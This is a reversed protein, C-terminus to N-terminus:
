KVYLLENPSSYYLMEIGVEFYGYLIELQIDQMIRTVKFFEAELCSSVDVLYDEENYTFSIEGNSIELDEESINITYLVYCIAITDDDDSNLVWGEEVNASCFIHSYDSDGLGDSDYDYYYTQEVADGGCEGACDAPNDTPCNSGTTNTGIDLHSASNRVEIVVFEREIISDETEDEHINDHEHEHTHETPAFDCGVILLLIILLKKM